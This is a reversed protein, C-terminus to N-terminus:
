LWEFFTGLHFHVKIWVSYCEFLFRFPFRLWSMPISNPISFHAPISTAPRIGRCLIVYFCFVLIFWGSLLMVSISWFVSFLGRFKLLSTTVWVGILFCRSISTYIFEFLLLLLLWLICSILVFLTHTLVRSSPSPLGNLNTSSIWIQWEFLYYICLRLILRVFREPIKFYLRIVLDRGYSWVKHNQFFSSFFSFRSFKAHLTFDLSFWFPSLIKSKVQSSFFSHFVFTVTIGLTIPASPVIGLRKTFPCFTKFTLPRASVM